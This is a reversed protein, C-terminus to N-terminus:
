AEPVSMPATINAISMALMNRSGIKMCSSSPKEAACDPMASMGRTITM